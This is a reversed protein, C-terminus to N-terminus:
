IGCMLNTDVECESLNSTTPIISQSIVSSHSSTSQKQPNSEPTVGLELLLNGLASILDKNPLTLKVITQGTYKRALQISATLHKRSASTIAEYINNSLEERTVSKKSM